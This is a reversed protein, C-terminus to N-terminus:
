CRSGETGGSVRFREIARPKQCDFLFGLSNQNAFLERFVPRLYRTLRSQRVSQRARIRRHELISVWNLNYDQDQLWSDLVSEDTSSSQFSTRLVSSVEEGPRARIRRHEFISVTVHERELPQFCFTSCPNTQARPNFGQHELTDMSRSM